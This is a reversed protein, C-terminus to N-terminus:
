TVSAFSKTPLLIMSPDGARCFTTWTWKAASSNISVSSEAATSAIEGQDKWLLYKDILDRSLRTGPSNTRIEEAARDRAEERDARAKNYEDRDDPGM